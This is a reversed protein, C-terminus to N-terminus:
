SLMGPVANWASLFFTLEEICNIENDGYYFLIDSAALLIAAGWYQLLSAELITLFLEVTSCAFGFYCFIVLCHCHFQLKVSVQFPHFRSSHAGM